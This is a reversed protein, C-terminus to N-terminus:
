FCLVYGWGFRRICGWREALGLSRARTLKRALDWGEGVWCAASGWGRCLGARGESDLVCCRMENVGIDEPSGLMAEDLFATGMREAGLPRGGFVGWERSLGRKNFFVVVDQIMGPSAFSDGRLGRAAM